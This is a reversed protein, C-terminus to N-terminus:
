FKPECNFSAPFGKRLKVCLCCLRLVGTLVTRLVNRWPVVVSPAIVLQWVHDGRGGVGRGVATVTM